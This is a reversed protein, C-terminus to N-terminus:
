ALGNLAYQYQAGCRQCDLPLVLQQPPEAFRELDDKRRNVLLLEYVRPLTGCLHNRRQVIGLLLIDALSDPLLAPVQHDYILCVFAAGVGFSGRTAAVLNFLGTAVLEHFVQSRIGVVQQQQSGRRVVTIIVSEAMEDSQNIGVQKWFGSPHPCACALYPTVDKTQSFVTGPRQTPQLFVEAVDVPLPKEWVTVRVCYGKPQVM